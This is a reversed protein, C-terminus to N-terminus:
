LNLKKTGSANECLLVTVREKSIKRGPVSKEKAHVYTKDPLMKWFLGTEDANVIADKSLNHQAILKKLNSIFPTVQETSSSLKEGSEKM